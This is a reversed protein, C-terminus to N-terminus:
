DPLGIDHRMHPSLSRIADRTPRDFRRDSERDPEESRLLNFIRSILSIHPLTPTSCDSM